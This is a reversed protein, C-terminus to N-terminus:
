SLHVINGIYGARTRGRRNFTTSAFTTMSMPTSGAPNFARAPPRLLFFVPCLTKWCSCSAGTQHLPDRTCLKPVGEATTFLFSISHPCPAHLYRMNRITEHVTHIFNRCRQHVFKQERSKKPLPPPRLGLAVFTGYSQVLYYNSMKSAPNTFGLGFNGYGSTKLKVRATKLDPSIKAKDRPEAHEFIVWQFKSNITIMSFWALYVIKERLNEVACEKAMPDHWFFDSTPPDIPLIGPVGGGFITINDTSGARSRLMRRREFILSATRLISATTFSRDNLSVIKMMYVVYALEQRKGDTLRKRITTQKVKRCYGHKLLRIGFQAM